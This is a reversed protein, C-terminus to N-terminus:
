GFTGAAPYFWMATPKGILHNQARASGDRNTAAFEPASVPQEPATGYYTAEEENTPDGGEGVSDGPSDKLATCGLLVTYLTALGIQAFRSM